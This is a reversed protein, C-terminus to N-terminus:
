KGKQLASIIERYRAQNKASNPGKWYDSTRDGMMKELGAKEAEAAQVANTGSGPVLTGVPNLERRLSVLWRILSPDDAMRTGDETRGNLIKDKLGEPAEELLSYAQKVTTRYEGGYEARLDDEALMRHEEDRAAQEAMLAEQKGLYWGLAQNVQKPHMNTAHAEKLFEDVIPRDAEGVVIGNPLDLQYNEAKEPIGNDQRWASLEEPTADPRLAAKLDGANIRAQAAFLADIAAKPSAYRELRKLIKSDEGAYKQRWDEPWDGKPEAAAPDAPPTAPDPIPLAGSAPDAPPTALDAPAPTLNPVPSPSPAAAPSPVQVPDSM